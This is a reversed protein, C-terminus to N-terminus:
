LQEVVDLVSPNLDAADHDPQFDGALRFFSDQESDDQEALSSAQIQQHQDPRATTAQQQDLGHECNTEAQDAGALLSHADASSSSSSSSKSSIPIDFIESFLTPLRVLTASSRLWHIYHTHVKNLNELDKLQVILNTYRADDQPQHASAPQVQGAAATPEGAGPGGGLSQKRLKTKLARM